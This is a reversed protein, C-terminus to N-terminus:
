IIQDEIVALMKNADQGLPEGPFAAVQRAILTWRKRDAIVRTHSKAVPTVHRDFENPTESLIQVAASVLSAALAAWGPESSLSGVFESAARMTKVSPAPRPRVAALALAHPVQPHAHFCRLEDAGVASFLAVVGLDPKPPDVPTRNTRTLMIARIADQAVKPGQDTLLAELRAAEVTDHVRPIDAQYYDRLARGQEQCLALTRKGKSRAQFVQAAAEGSEFSEEANEGVRRYVIPADGNGRPQTTEVRDTIFAAETPIECRESSRGFMEEAVRPAITRASQRAWGMLSADAIRRPEFNAKLGAIADLIRRETEEHIDIVSQDRLQTKRTYQSVASHIVRSDLVIRIMVSRADVEDLRGAQLDVAVASAQGDFADFADATGPQCMDASSRSTM